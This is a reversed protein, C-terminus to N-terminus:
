PGRQWKTCARSSTLDDGESVGSFFGAPGTLCSGINPRLAPPGSAQDKLLWYSFLVSIREATAWSSLYKLMDLLLRGKMLEEDLSEELLPEKQESASERGEDEGGRSDRHAEGGEWLSPGLLRLTGRKLLNAHCDEKCCLRSLLKIKYVLRIDSRRVIRVSTSLVLRLQFHGGRCKCLLQLCLLLKFSRSYDHSSQSLNIEGKNRADGEGVKGLREGAKKKKEV